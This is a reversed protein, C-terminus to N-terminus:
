VLKFQIKDGDCLNLLERLNKKAVIEIIAKPHHTRFPLILISSIKEELIIKYAIVDGFYRNETSFGKIIHKEKDNLEIKLSILTEQDLKLNLTGPYPDISFKKQIQKRYNNQSLYYAGEGDGSVVYGYFRNIEKEKLIKKLQIYIKKLLEQSKKTLKIQNNEDKTLYENKQLDIIKRSATQQSTNIQRALATTSLNIHKNLAGFKAIELIIEFYDKKM